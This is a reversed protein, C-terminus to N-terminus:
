GRPISRLVALALLTIRGIKDSRLFLISTIQMKQISPVTIDYKIMVTMIVESNSFVMPQCIDQHTFFSPLNHYNIGKDALINWSKM